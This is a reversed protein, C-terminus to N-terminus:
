ICKQAALNQINLPVASETWDIRGLNVQYIMDIYNEIAFLRSYIYYYSLLILKFTFDVM